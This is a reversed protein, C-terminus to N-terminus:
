MSTSTSTYSKRMNLDAVLVKVKQTTSVIKKEPAKTTPQTTSPQTPAATTPEDVTTDDGPADTNKTLGYEKALVAAEKKAMKKLNSNSSLWKTAALNTHFSHEIIMGKTGVAKSGRLVGYYETKGDKNLKQWIKYSQKTKMTDEIAKGLGKAIADGTHGKQTIILPYDSIASSSSNSHLSLFLNYGKSATGRSYVALDKAQSARTVGVEFGYSELETKLYNHLAWSMKSEYYSAYVPSKNYNGFHGADLMIKIEKDFVAKVKHDANVNEFTYSTQNGLSEGDVQLDSVYYGSKPTATVTFSDNERVSATKTISGRSSSNVSTTIKYTEMDGFNVTINTDEEPIFSETMTGYPDVIEVDKDGLKVSLIKKGDEPVVTYTVKKGKQVVSPNVMITGYSENPQVRASIMYTDTEGTGETNETSQTPETPASTETDDAETKEAQVQDSAAAPAANDADTEAFVAPASSFMTIAMCTSILISLVRNSKKM